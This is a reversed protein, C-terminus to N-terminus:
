QVGEATHSIIKTVELIENKSVPPPGGTRLSTSLLKYFRGHNGNPAPISLRDGSAFCDVTAPDSDIGWDSSCPSDGRILRKGQDDSLQKTWVGSSGLLRFRPTEQNTLYSVKLRVLLSRYRLVAAGWDAADGEDRVTKSWLSFEEPKGFLSIVQDVVHAGLDAWVGGNHKLLRWGRPGPKVLRHMQTELVSPKGVIGSSLAERLALFDSDWRRNQFVTLIVGAEEALGFLDLSEKTSLTMPKDVVVHKESALCRAAISYHSHNPTAVVVLEVNDMECMRDLTIIPLNTNVKLRAEQPNRSVLAVVRFCSLCNLLPLHFTMAAFGVGVIAVNVHEIAGSDM